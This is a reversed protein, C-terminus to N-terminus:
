GERRGIHHLVPSSLELLVDSLQELHVPLSTCGTRNQGYPILMQCGALWVLGVGGWVHLRKRRLNEPQNRIVKLIGGDHPSMFCSGRSPSHKNVKAWRKLDFFVASSGLKAGVLDYIRLRPLDVESDVAPATTIRLIDNDPPGRRTSSVLLCIAIERPSRKGHQHQERAHWGPDQDRPRELGLGINASPSNKPFQWKPLRTKLSRVTAWSSKILDFWKNYLNTCRFWLGWRQFDFTIIVISNEGLVDDIHLGMAWGM